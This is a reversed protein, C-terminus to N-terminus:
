LLTSQYCSRVRLVKLELLILAPTVTAWLVDETVGLAEISPQATHNLSKEMQSETASGRGVGVEPMNGKLPPPLKIVPFLM